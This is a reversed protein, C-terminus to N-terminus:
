EIYLTVFSCSNLIAIAMQKEGAFFITIMRTLEHSFSLKFLDLDYLDEITLKRQDYHRSVSQSFVSFINSMALFTLQLNM